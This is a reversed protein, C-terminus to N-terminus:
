RANFKCVYDYMFSNPGPSINQWTYKDGTVIYGDLYKEEPSLFTISGKLYKENACDYYGMIQVIGINKLSKGRTYVRKERFSRIANMFKIEDVDIFHSIDIGDYTRDSTVFKWNTSYGPVVNISLTLITFIILKM